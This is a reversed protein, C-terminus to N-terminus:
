GDRRISNMTTFRPDASRSPYETLERVTKEVVDRLACEFAERSEFIRECEVISLGEDLMVGLIEARSIQKRHTRPVAPHAPSEPDYRQEPDWCAAAQRSAVTEIAMAFSEKDELIRGALVRNAGPLPFGAGVVCDVIQERSVIRHREM